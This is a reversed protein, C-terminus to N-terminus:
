FFFFSLPQAHLLPLPGLSSSLSRVASKPDGRQWSGPGRARRQGVPAPPSVQSAKSLLLLPSASSSSSSPLRPSRWGRLPATWGGSVASHLHGEQQQCNGRRGSLARVESWKLAPPPPSVPKGWHKSFPLSTPPAQHLTSNLRIQIWTSSLVSFPFMHCVHATYWGGQM